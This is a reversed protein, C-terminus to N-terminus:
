SIFLDRKTLNIYLASIESAEASYYFIIEKEQAFSM